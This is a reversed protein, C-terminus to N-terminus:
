SRACATSASASASTAVARPPEAQLRRRRDETASTTSRRATSTPAAASSCRCNADALPQLVDQGAKRTAIKADAPFEPIAAFLAALRAAHATDAARTRSRADHRAGRRADPERGEVGRVDEEVRRLQPTSSRRTSPSTPASRPRSSSTSRRAPRPGQARRRRVERRRRRAGEAHRRGRPHGQRHADERHHAAAQRQGGEERARVRRPLRGHRSRRGDARRLRAGRLAQRRRREAHGRGDRRAHRRELRLHPDPQRAEPPRRVGHGGHAVGEQMCGDGALCVIHHDFITHDKRTSARRPWRPRSAGHRGRQAIGQGLPGTTTEVGDAHADFEPHGPRRRASSRPLAEGRRADHERLRQPAAVRLPVDLRPRRLPRLPRPELWEPHAPDHRLAHGYLVAGIEACGLPLGLHGSQCAHVADIALGRAITAASALKEKPLTSM